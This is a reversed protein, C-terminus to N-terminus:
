EAGTADYDASMGALARLTDDDLRHGGPFAIFRFPFGAERLRAKEKEVLKPTAFV